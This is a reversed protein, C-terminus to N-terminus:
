IMLVFTTNRILFKPPGSDVSPMYTPLPGWKLLLRLQTLTEKDPDIEKGM